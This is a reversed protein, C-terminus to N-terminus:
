GRIDPDTHKYAAVAVPTSTFTLSSPEVSSREPMQCPTVAPAICSLAVVDAYVHEIMPKEVSVKVAEYIGPDAPTAAAAPMAMTFAMAALALGACVLSRISRM